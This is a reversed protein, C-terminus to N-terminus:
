RKHVWRTNSSRPYKAPATRVDRARLVPGRRGQAAPDASGDAEALAGAGAEAGALCPRQEGEGPGLARMGRFDMTATHAFSGSIMWWRLFRPTSVMVNTPTLLLIMRWPKKPPAPNRHVLDKECWKSVMPNFGYRQNINVPSDDDLTESRHHSTSKTWGCYQM